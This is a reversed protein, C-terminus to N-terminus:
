TRPGMSCRHLGNELFTASLVLRRGVRLRAAELGIVPVRIGISAFRVGVCAVHSSVLPGRASVHAFYHRIRTTDLGIQAFHHGIGARDRGISTFRVGLCPLRGGIRSTGSGVDTLVESVHPLRIGGTLSVVDLLQHPRGVLAGDGSLEAQCLGVHVHLCCLLM